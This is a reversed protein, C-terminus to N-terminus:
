RVMLKTAFSQGNNRIIAIYMNPQLQHEIVAADVNEINMVSKGTVTIVELSYDEGPQLDQLYFAGNAEFMTPQAVDTGAINTGTGITLGKQNQFTVEDQTLAKDYINAEHITGLWTPDGAYGGRGLWANVTSVSAINNNAALADSGVLVGDVYFSITTADIVVIGHYLQDADLVAATNVGTEAAWPSDVDGCSIAARAVGDARTPQIFFGNSGFFVNPDTSPSESGGLYAVMTFGGTNAGATPTFWTEISVEGYTNIAISAADLVVTGGNLVAGMDGAATAAIQADGDLAGNASGKMDDANEAEFTWSHTLNGSPDQAFASGAFILLGVLLYNLKTM